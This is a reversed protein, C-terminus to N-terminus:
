SESAHKQKRDDYSSFSTIWELHWEMGGSPKASGLLAYGCAKARSAWPAYPSFWLDSMAMVAALGYSGPRVLSKMAHRDLASPAFKEGTTKGYLNGFYALAKRVDGGAGKGEGAEGRLRPQKHEHRLNKTKLETRNAPRSVAENSVGPRTSKVGGRASTDAHSLRRLIKLPPLKILYTSKKDAGTREDQNRRCVVFGKKVLERMARRFNRVDTDPVYMMLRARGATVEWAKNAFRFLAVMIRHAALGVPLFNVQPPIRIPSQDFEDREDFFTKGQM